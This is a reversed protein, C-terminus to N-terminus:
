SNHARRTGPNPQLLGFRWSRAPAKAVELHVWGPPPRGQPAKVHSTLSLVPYVFLRSVLCSPISLDQKLVVPRQFPARPFVQGTSRKNGGEWSDPLNGPHPPALGPRSSEIPNPLLLLNRLLAHLPLWAMSSLPVFSSPFTALEMVSPRPLHPLRFLCNPTLDKFLTSSSNSRGEVPFKSSM